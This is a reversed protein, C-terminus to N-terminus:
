VVDRFRGVALPENSSGDSAPRFGKRRFPTPKPIAAEESGGGGELSVQFIIRNGARSRGNGSSSSGGTTPLTVAFGSALPQAAGERKDASTAASSLVTGMAAIVCCSGGSGVPVDPHSIPAHRQGLLHHWREQVQQPRLRRSRTAAPRNCLRPHSSWKLLQQHSCVPLDAPERSWTPARVPLAQVAMLSEVALGLEALEQQQRPM